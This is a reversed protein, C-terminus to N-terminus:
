LAVAKADIEDTAVVLEGGRGDRTLQVNGGLVNKGLHARLLLRVEDAFQLLRAFADCEDTIADVVSGRELLSIKPDCHAAGAIDRALRRVDDQQFRFDFRHRLRQSKRSRRQAGDFLIQEPCEKVVCNAHRQGRKAKHTRDQAGGCHAKGIQDHNAVRESQPTPLERLSGLRFDGIEHLRFGNPSWATKTPM